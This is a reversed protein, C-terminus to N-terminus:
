SNPNKGRRTSKLYARNHHRALLQALMLYHTSSQLTM